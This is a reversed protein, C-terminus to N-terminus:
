ADSVEQLFPHYTIKALPHGLYLYALYTFLRNDHAFRARIQRMVEGLPLAEDLALRYFTEAIDRAHQDYVSWLPGVYGKYQQRLLARGWGGNSGLPGPAARGVNCANFFALTPKLKGLRNGLDNSAARADFYAQRNTLVLWNGRLPDTCCDGHGAYHLIGTGQTPQGSRMFDLFAEPAESLIYPRYREALWAKEAQAEALPNDTYRPVALTFGELTLAVEPLPAGVELLWRGVRHASGLLLPMKNDVAEEAVPMLEWPIHTDATRFLITFQEPPRHAARHREMAREYLQWFEVPASHRLELLNQFLIPISGPKLQGTEDMHDEPWNGPMGFPTLYTKVFEEAGLHRSYYPAPPLDAGTLYPSNIDWLLQDTRDKAEDITVTLHVPEDSEQYAVPTAVPELRVRGPEDLPYGPAKPFASLPTPAVAESQLVEVRRYAEGIVEGQVLYQLKLSAFYRPELRDQALLNFTVASSAAAEIYFTLERRWDLAQDDPALDFDPAYLRVQIKKIVEGAEVPVDMAPASVQPGAQQPQDSLKVTLAYVQGVYAYDSGQLNAHTRVTLSDPPVSSMSLNLDSWVPSEPGGNAAALEDSTQELRVAAALAQGAAIVDARSVTLGKAGAETEARLPVERSQGSTPDTMRVSRTASDVTGAETAAQNLLARVLEAAPSALGLDIIEDIALSLDDDSEVWDLDVLLADLRAAFTPWDAGLLIRLRDLHAVLAQIFLLSETMHSM